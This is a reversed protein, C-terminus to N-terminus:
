PFFGRCKWKSSAIIFVAVEPTLFYVIAINERLIYALIRSQQIQLIRRAFCARKQSNELDNKTVQDLLEMCSRVYLIESSAILIIYKRFYLVQASGQLYTSYDEITM